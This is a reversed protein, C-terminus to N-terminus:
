MRPMRLQLSDQVKRIGCCDAEYSDDSSRKICLVGSNLLTDAIHAVEPSRDPKGGYVAQGVLGMVSSTNIIWGRHGSPHPLQQLFQACAYKCGLFVSRSNIAMVTDWTDETMEHVMGHNETGGIGANNVM